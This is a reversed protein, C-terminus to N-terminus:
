GVRLLELYSGAGLTCTAAEVSNQAWRLAVEGDAGAIFLTEAFVPRWAAAGSEGGSATGPDTITWEQFVPVQSTDQSAPHMSFWGSGASQFGVTGSPYGFGWRFDGVTGSDQTMFSQLRYKAGGEVPLKLYTDDVMDADNSKSQAVPRVVIRSRVGQWAVGTWMELEGTVGVFVQQGKPINATSEWMADRAEGDAVHVAGLHSAYTGIVVWQAGFKALGVRAGPLVTVSRFSKVPVAVGSGDFLVNVTNTAKDTASQATGMALTKEEYSRIREDILDLAAWNFTM